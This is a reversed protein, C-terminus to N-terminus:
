PEKGGGSNGPKMLVVFRDTVVMRGTQVDGYELQSLALWTHPKGHQWLRGRTHMSNGSGRCFQHTSNKTRKRMLPLRGELEAFDVEANPKELGARFESV